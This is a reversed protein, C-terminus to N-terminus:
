LVEIMEDDNKKKAIGLIYATREYFNMDENGIIKRVVGETDPRYGSLATNHGQGLGKKHKIGIAVPVVTKVYPIQQEEASRWLWMDSRVGDVDLPIENILRRLTTATGFTNFMSCHHNTRIVMMKQSGIHYYVTPNIGILESNSFELYKIMHALYVPSYWDDDEIIAIYRAGISEVLKRMNKLMSPGEQVTHIVSGTYHEKFREVYYKARELFFLSRGPAAATICAVDAM